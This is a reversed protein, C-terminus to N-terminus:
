YRSRSYRAAAGVLYGSNLAFIYGFLIAVKFWDLEEYVLWFTVLCISVLTAVPALVLIRARRSLMFGVGFLVAAILM